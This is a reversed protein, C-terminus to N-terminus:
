KIRLQELNAPTYQHPINNWQCNPSNRPNVDTWYNTIMVTVPPEV